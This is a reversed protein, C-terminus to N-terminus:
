KLNMKSYNYEDYFKQYPIIESLLIKKGGSIILEVFIFYEKSFIKLQGTLQKNYIKGVSLKNYIQLFSHLIEQNNCILYFDRDTLSM